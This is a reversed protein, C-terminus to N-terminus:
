PLSFFSSIARNPEYQNLKANVVCTRLTKGSIRSDIWPGSSLRDIPVYLVGNVEKTQKGFIDRLRNGPFVPEGYSNPAEFFELNEHISGENTLDSVLRYVNSIEIRTQAIYVAPPGRINDVRPNSEFLVLYNSRPLRKVISRLAKSSITEIEEFTLGDCNM